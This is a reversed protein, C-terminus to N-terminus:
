TLVPPNLLNENGAQLSLTQRRLGDPRPCTSVLVTLKIFSYSYIVVKVSIISPQTVCHWQLMDRVHPPPPQFYKHFSMACYVASYIRWQFSQSTRICLSICLPQRWWVRKCKAARGICLCLYFYAMRHVCKDSTDALVILPLIRLM